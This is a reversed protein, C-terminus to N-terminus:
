PKLACRDLFPLVYGCFGSEGCCAGNSCPKSASCSYDERRHLTINSAPSADLASNLDDHRAVLLNSTIEIKAGGYSRLAVLLFAGAFCLSFLRTGTRWSRDQTMIGLSARPRFFNFVFPVHLHCSDCSKSVVM